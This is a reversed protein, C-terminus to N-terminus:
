GYIIISNFHFQLYDKSLYIVPSIISWFFDIDSSTETPIKVGIKHNDNGFGLGSFWINM